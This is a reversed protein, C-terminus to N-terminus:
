CAEEFYSKCENEPPDDLVYPVPQSSRDVWLDVPSTVGAITFKHKPVAFLLPKSLFGLAM